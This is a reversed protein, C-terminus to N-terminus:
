HESLDTDGRPLLQESSLHLGCIIRKKKWRCSNESRFLFKQNAKGSEGILTELQM